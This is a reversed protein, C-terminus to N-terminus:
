DNAVFSQELANFLRDTGSKAHVILIYMHHASVIAAVRAAYGDPGKVHADLAALGDIQVRQTGQISGAANNMGEQVAAQLMQDIKSDPVVTPLELEGVGLEYSDKSVMAINVTLSITGVQRSTSDTEPQEPFQATYAGDDPTYTVGKGAVFDSTGAPLANRHTLVTYGVAACALFMVLIVSIAARPNGVRRKTTTVIPAPAWATAGFM